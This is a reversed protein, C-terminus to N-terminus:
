KHLAKFRAQMWDFAEKVDKASDFSKKDTLDEFAYKLASLADAFPKEDEESWENSCLKAVDENKKKLSFPLDKLWSICEESGKTEAETRQYHRAYFVARDKNREDEESWEQKPQTRSLKFIREQLSVIWQKLELCYDANSTNLITGPSILCCVKDLMKEDEESWDVVEWVDQKEFPVYVRSDFFYANDKIEVIERPSSDSQTSLKIKDGVKFKPKINEAPKQIDGFLKHLDECLGYIDYERNPLKVEYVDCLAKFKKVYEEKSLKKTPKQEEEFKEMCTFYGNPYEDGPIIHDSATNDEFVVHYFDPGHLGEIKEFSKIIHKRGDGDILRVADGVKFGFVELIPKQEKQEPTENGNWFKDNLWRVARERTFHEFATRDSMKIFECCWNLKKKDEESWEAPKQEKQKELYNLVADKGVGGYFTFNDNPCNSIYDYLWKRIREDESEALEPVLVALAEKERDTKLWQSMENAVKLAEERTM